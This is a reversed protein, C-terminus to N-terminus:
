WTLRLRPALEALVQHLALKRAIHPSHVGSFVTACFTEEVDGATTGSGIETTSGLFRRTSARFDMRWSMILVDSFDM